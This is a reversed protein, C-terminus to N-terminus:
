GPSPAPPPVLRDLAKQAGKKIDVNTEEALARELAPRASPGVKEVVFRVAKQQTKATLCAVAIRMVEPDDRLSADDRLARELEEIADSCWLRRQYETAVLLKRQAATPQPVPLPATPIPVPIATTAPKRFALVFLLVLATVAGVMGAYPAWAPLGLAAALGDHFVRTHSASPAHRADHELPPPRRKRSM